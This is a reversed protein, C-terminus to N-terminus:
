GEKLVVKLCPLIVGRELSSKFLALQRSNFQFGTKLPMCNNGTVESSFKYRFVPWKRICGYTTIYSSGNYLEKVTLCYM